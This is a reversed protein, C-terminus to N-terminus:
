GAASRATAPSRGLEVREGVRQAARSPYVDDSGARAEVRGLEAGLQELTAADVRDGHGDASKARQRGAGQGARPPSDQDHWVPVVGYASVTRSCARAWPTGSTAPIAPSRDPQFSAIRVGVCSRESVYM